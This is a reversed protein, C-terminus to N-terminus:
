IQKIWNLWWWKVWRLIRGALNERTIKLYNHYIPVTPLTKLSFVQFISNYEMLIPLHDVKNDFFRFFLIQKFLQCKSLWSDQLSQYRCYLWKLQRLRASKLLFFKWRISILEVASIPPYFYSDCGWRFIIHLISIWIKPTYYLKAIRDQWVLEWIVSHPFCRIKSWGNKFCILRAGTKNFFM